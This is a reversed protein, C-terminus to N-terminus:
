ESWVALESGNPDRFHYRRGGPFSFIPQVIDGGAARVAEVSAELDQAYLVILAGGTVPKLDRNFGGNIGAGLFGVYDPGWDQFDWGFAAKYFAKTAPGDVLPLEIYNISHDAPKTMEDAEQGHAVASLAMVGTLAAAMLVNRHM